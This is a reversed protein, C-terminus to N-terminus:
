QHSAAGASAFRAGASVERASTDAQLAAGTALDGRKTYEVQEDTSVRLYIAALGAGRPSVAGKRRRVRPEPISGTNV